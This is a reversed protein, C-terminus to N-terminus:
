ALLPCVAVDQKSIECCHFNFAVQGSWDGDQPQPTEARKQPPRGQVAGAIAGFFGGVQLWDFDCSQRFAAIWDSTDSLHM